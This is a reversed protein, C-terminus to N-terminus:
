RPVIAFQPEKAYNPKVSRAMFLAWAKRGAEGSVGAAYALAPQMNSPFGAASASYGGMDGPKHGLADALQASDCPLAAVDPGVTAAYAEAITDFIPAAPTARVTYTYNAGAMWCAGPGVMRAVPFRAKYKLLPEADKFGLEALHGVSSTFFDDQWPAVATKKKYVVASGNVIVGLKNAEPNRSYEANYWDLNNDLIALLDRKLPHGDPTIYAAQGLTRLSWAQGRVQQRELLGRVNKRYGPNSSFVNYMAWFQLEELYYHDGTVLYPLYAFGPQHASDAQYPTKCLTKPCPPFAELKGTKPNRTDSKSGLLTMYPHDILSIPLGTRKDRYHISWSGALDATGLTIEKALADMGLLYMAAWGPLLGIDIRGGTGPMARKAVGVGMPETAPGSWKSALSSLAPSSVSVSPDYNPLARTAMLYAPDHRLHLAPEEGTWALKRWRAHHWHTLQQKAYVQKGGVALEVDYTINSPDPEYAWNNEVVVDVRARKAAGYWRVAFRAALHPHEAGRANRLPGAVQLETVVPGHLWVQPKQAKFLADSSATYREGDVTIALTAGVEPGPKASGGQDGKNPAKVLAIGLDKGTVRPLVTSLVAHRVSGDPHSAKVDMQLPLLTGDALKGALTSGRPVDGAAFVQGFSLPVNSQAGRGTSEVVVGTIGGAPIATRNRPAPREEDPAPRARKRPGDDEDADERRKGAARADLRDRAEAAKGPTEQPAAAAGHRESLVRSSDLKGTSPLGVFGPEDGASKKEQGQAGTAALAILCAILIRSPASAPQM